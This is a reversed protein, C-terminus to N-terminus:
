TREHIEELVLGKNRDTAWTIAWETEFLLVPMGDKDLVRMTTSTLSLKSADRPKGEADAAVWRSHRYNLQSLRVDVSYEAKLRYELVELQLVGVVGVIFTETGIDPQKFVQIAGEESLQAIGKLFQKRKMSDAPSIRAFHEAPFVPIGEFVLDRTGQVLSDGIRFMGPDFVGIIDGAYAEEVISREQAM